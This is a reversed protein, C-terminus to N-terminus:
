KGQYADEIRYFFRCFDKVKKVKSVTLIRKRDCFDAGAKQLDQVTVHYRQAVSQLVSENMSVLGQADYVLVDLKKELAISCKYEKSFSKYEEAKVYFPILKNILLNRYSGTYARGLSMNMSYNLESVKGQSDLGISEWELDGSLRSATCNDGSLYLTVYDEEYPVKWKVDGFMADVSREAQLTLLSQSNKSGQSHVFATLTPVTQRVYFAYDITIGQDFDELRAPFGQQDYKIARNGVLFPDPCIKKSVDGNASFRYICQKTKYDSKNLVKAERYTTNDCFSKWGQRARTGYQGNHEQAYTWDMLNVLGDVDDCGLSGKADMISLQKGERNSTSHVVSANKANYYQDALGLFHGIEHTLIAQVGGNGYSQPDKQEYELFPVIIHKGWICGSAVSGCTNIMEDETSFRIVVDAEDESSVQTLKVGNELVPMIDTFETSRGAKKIQEKAYIFWTNFGKTIAASTNLTNEIQSHVKSQTNTSRIKPAKKADKIVFYKITQNHLIKEMAFGKGRSTEYDTLMGWPAAMLGYSTCLLLILSGYFTKM